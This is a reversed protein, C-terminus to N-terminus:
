NKRPKYSKKLKQIFMSFFLQDLLQLGDLSGLVKAVTDDKGANRSEEGRGDPQGEGAEGKPEAPSDLAEVDNKQGGM